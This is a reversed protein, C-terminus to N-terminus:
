GKETHVVLQPFPITWGNATCTALAIANTRRQLEFFRAAVSGAFRALVVFDLSTSGAAQFEVRVDLLEGAGVATGLGATVDRALREPITTLAEGQHRYDVSCTTSVVFGSSLNRPSKQLFELTPYTRPAGFSEVVVVDPTQTRVVGVVGDALAVVDGKRCPFWPEGDGSRRSRKGVLNQIPVRLNGGDLDPNVLRSYLRLTDVRYPLGDVLLREGERVGGINLVLRIQEFFQPMMRILLWGAGILFLICVALLLWDNRVWPVFLTAGIALLLSLTQLAVEVLRLSLGRDPSRRRLMRELLFRLGFFVTAFVLISLVVSTGSSQVFNKAASGLSSALSAQGSERAALRARLVVIENRLGDITPRWRERLEREIEAAAPSGAPLSRATAEVARQADEAIRQRHQLADVRAKLEAIQRPEETADKLTEILPRILEEIEAKLDFTRQQPAEFDQVDIRAVLGAFQWSLDRIRKEAADAAATDQAVRARDRAAREQEMQASLHELAALTTPDLPKGSPDQPASVATPQQQAAAPEATFPVFAFGLAAFLALRPM